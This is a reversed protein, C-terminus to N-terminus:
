QRRTRLSVLRSQVASSGGTRGTSARATTVMAQLVLTDPDGALPQVSWRRVFVGSAPPSAGHGAWTGMADLYDVYPPMNEDLTGPPSAGLGPGGDNGAETSLDTTVDSMPIGDVTVGWALSRLQEIKQATLVAAITAARASFSARVAQAMVPAVGTAVVILLGSAVLVEVLTSGSTNALRHAISM